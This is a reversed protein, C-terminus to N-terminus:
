VDITTMPKSQEPSSSSDLDITAVPNYVQAQRSGSGSGSVSGSGTGGLRHGQGQGQGELSLRQGDGHYQESASSFFSGLYNVCKTIGITDMDEYINEKKVKLNQTVIRSAADDIELLGRLLLVLLLIELVITVIFISIGAVVYGSSLSYSELVSKTLIANTMTSLDYLIAFSLYVLAVLYVDSFM